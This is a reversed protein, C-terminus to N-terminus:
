AAHLEQCHIRLSSDSGPKYTLDFSYRQLQLLMRQLRKPSTAISKKLIAQLPKHDSEVVIHWGYTYHNFKEMALVIALLEKKIQAYNQETHSLAHSGYSISRGEQMLVTGLAARSADCQVTSSQLSKDFFALVPATTLATKIQEFAASQEHTWEWM